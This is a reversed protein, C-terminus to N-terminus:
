IFILEEPRMRVCVCVCYVAQAAGLQDAPSGGIERDLKHTIHTM